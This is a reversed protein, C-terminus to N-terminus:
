LYIWLLLSLGQEDAMEVWQLIHAAAYEFVNKENEQKNEKWVAAREWVRTSEGQM